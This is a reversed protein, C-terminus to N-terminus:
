VQAAGIVWGCEGGSGIDCTTVESQEGVNMEVELKV